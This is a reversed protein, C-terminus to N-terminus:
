QRRNAAFRNKGFGFSVHLARQAALFSVIEILILPPGAARAANTSVSSLRALPTIARSWDRENFVGTM